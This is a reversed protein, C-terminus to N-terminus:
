SKDAAKSLSPHEQSFPPQHHQICTAPVQVGSISAVILEM